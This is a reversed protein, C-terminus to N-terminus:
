DSLLILLYHNSWFGYYIDEVFAGSLVKPYYSTQGLDVYDKHRIEAEEVM